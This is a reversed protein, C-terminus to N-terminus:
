DNGWKDFGYKEAIERITRLVLLKDYYSLKGGELYILYERRLKTPVERDIVSFIYKKDMDGALDYEVSLNDALLEESLLQPEAVSKKKNNHTIKKQYKKYEEVSCNDDPKLITRSLKSRRLDIMANRANMFLFTYLDSKEEEYNNLIKLCLIRIEQEIDEVDYYSFTFFPALNKATKNIIDLIYKDLTYKDINNTTNM